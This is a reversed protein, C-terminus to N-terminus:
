FRGGCNADDDDDDDMLWTTGNDNKRNLCKVGIPAMRSLTLTKKKKREKRKCRSKNGFRTFHEM